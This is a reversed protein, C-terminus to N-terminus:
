RKITKMKREMKRRQQRNLGTAKLNDAVAQVKDFDEKPMSQLVSLPSEGKLIRWIYSIGSSM